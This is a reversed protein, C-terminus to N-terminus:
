PNKPGKSPPRSGYHRLIRYEVVIPILGQLWPSQANQENQPIDDTWSMTVRYLTSLGVRLWDQMPRHLYTLRLHITNANASVQETQWLPRGFAHQFQHREYGLRVRANAFRGPPIFIRSLSQYLAPQWHKPDGQHVAAVRAAEHLGLTLLHQIQYGRALEVGVSGIIFLPLLAMLTELFAAGRQPDAKSPPLQAKNM